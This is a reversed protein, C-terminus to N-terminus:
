RLWGEEKALSLEHRRIQRAEFDRSDVRHQQSQSLANRGPPSHHTAKIDHDGHIPSPSGLIEDQSQYSPMTKARALAHELNVLNNEHTERASIPKYRRSNPSSPDYYDRMRRDLSREKRQLPVQTTFSPKFSPITEAPLASRTQCSESSRPASFEEALRENWEDIDSMAPASGERSQAQELAHVQKHQKPPTPADLHVVRGTDNDYFWDGSKGGTKSIVRTRTIHMAKDIGKLMDYMTVAGITAATLAEMEVGTQGQCEVSAVIRVGGFDSRVMRYHDGHTSVEHYQNKEGSFTDIKVTVGTINLSPHALPILDPTKKAAQIAAVRAVAQADGKIVTHNTLASLTVDSSFLLVSEACASRTTPSKHSINVM